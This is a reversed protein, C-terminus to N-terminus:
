NLPIRQYMNVNTTAPLAPVQVRVRGPNSTGSGDVLVDANNAGGAVVGNYGMPYARTWNGPPTYAAPLNNAWTFAGALGGTTQANLDIDLICEGEASMRYRGNNVTWSSSSFAGLTHWSEPVAPASSPAAAAISGALINFGTIDLYAQEHPNGNSGVYIFDLNASSANNASATNFLLQTWDHAGVTNLKASSIAMQLYETAGSGVIDATINALQQEIAANTPFLLAAQLSGPQLLIQVGNASGICVTGPTYANGYLDTGSASTGTISMILTGPGPTGNYFFAGNNNVVFGGGSIGSQFFALGGPILFVNIAPGTTIGYITEKGDVVVWSQPSLPIADILRGAQIANNQGLWLTTNIDSNGILTPGDGAYVLPDAPQTGNVSLTSFAMM